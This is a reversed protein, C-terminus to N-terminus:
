FVHVDCHEMQQLVCYYLRLLHLSLFFSSIRCQVNPMVGDYVFPRVLTFGPPVSPPECGVNLRTAFLGIEVPCLRPGGM